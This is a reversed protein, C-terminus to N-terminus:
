PDAENRVNRINVPAEVIRANRRYRANGSKSDARGWFVFAWACPKRDVAKVELAIWFVFGGAKARAYSKGTWRSASAREAYLPM